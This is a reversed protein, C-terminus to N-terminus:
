IKTGSTEVIVCTAKGTKMLKDDMWLQRVALLSTRSIAYVFQVDSMITNTFMIKDATYIAKFTGSYGTARMTVSAEQREEDVVIDDTKKGDEDIFPCTLYVPKAALPTSAIFAAGALIAFLNKMKM